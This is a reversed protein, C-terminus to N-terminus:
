RFRIEFGAKIVANKVKEITTSDKPSFSLRAQELSVSINSAEPISNAAKEVSQACHMCSMGSVYIIAKNEAYHQEQKNDGRKKGIYYWALMASLVVTGSLKLWGPLIEHSHWMFGINFDYYGAIKNLLFGMGLSVAAISALYLSTSSKGVLKSVASIGVANTAPGALLFVLAAGPSLGKMILSAAIPTSSAACVYMPISAALILLMSLFDSGMYIEFFSEPILASILGAIIVGIILHNAISGLLDYEIYGVVTKTRAAISEHCEPATKELVESKEKKGFINVAIGAVLGTIISAVIRIIGFLPGLLSYTLMFSDAGVQPTTILFSIVSGDSAGSKKLATGVPLVGCSCIPIPIGFLTSKVVSAFNDNGLYRRVISEPFFIHLVGAISFGFLLYIAIENYFFIIDKSINTLFNM